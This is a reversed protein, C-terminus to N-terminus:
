IKHYERYWRAFRMIGDEIRTAPRFGIDRALDEVDAYTAPVDGPQMPLMEKTATRGFEKELVSIVHMLDEPNNNGINYIKWPAASSSPDPQDGSWDPNGQPPRDVLRVIAESVDEVFTFDRRMKGHNFLKIPAGSLIAKAFIFMAMDPRGWPGYVTFFRLGTAPVRYLHSYTHAMLENAKKSAAYLSIPHDVNDNVSFPLKTNAGYVSSSSAFLLHGCGNHRCGELVNIFGEINADIYAHPNELSYRVGAQAALHIVTPFRHQAFLSKIAARDALDLKEFAFNPDRKLIELRAEKLRPDYYSNVIDLGVVKRGAALLRQVVHFGIFGAAGTVLITDSM